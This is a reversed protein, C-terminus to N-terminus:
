QGVTFTAPLVAGGLSALDGYLDAFSCEPAKDCTQAMFAGMWPRAHEEIYCRLAVRRAEIAAEDEQELARVLLAYLHSFFALEFWISDAPEHREPDPELGEERMLRMIDEASRNRFLLPSGPRQDAIFRFPGEYPYVPVHDGPALYLISFGRRMMEQLEDADAGRLRSIREISDTAREAVGMDEACSRADSVFSGDCLAQALARDPYSFARALLELMDAAGVARKLESEAKAGM